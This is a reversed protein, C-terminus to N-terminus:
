FVLRELLRRLLGARESQTPYVTVTTCQPSPFAPREDFLVSRLRHDAGRRVVVDPHTGRGGDTRVPASQVPVSLLSSLDSQYEGVTTRYQDPTDSDVPYWLSIRGDNSGAVTDAVSVALPDYPGVGALVVHRPRDYGLNDVLLV